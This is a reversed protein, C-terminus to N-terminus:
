KNTEVTVMKVGGIGSAVWLKYDRFLIHNVSEHKEFGIKGLLEPAEKVKGRHYAAVYAGGEGNSIFLLGNEASVANTICNEDEFTITHLLSGDKQDLIIVGSQGAAIFIRDDSVDITTKSEPTNAGDFLYSEDFEMKNASLLSVAGPNGQVVFLDNGTGAMWRADHLPMYDEQNLNRDLKYLGGGMEMDDGTTVYIDNKFEVISNAAYSGLEVLVHDEGTFQSGNIMIREIYAPGTAGERGGALYAYRDHAAIAHIDSDEFLVQSQIRLDANIYDVGGLYTEGQFNYSILYNGSHYHLSTAQLTKGDIEPPSLEAKLILNFTSEVRGSTSRNEVPVTDNRGTMRENLQATDNNIQLQRGPSIEENSLNCAALALLMVGIALLHSKICTM